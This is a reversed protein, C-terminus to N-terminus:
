FTDNFIKEASALIETPSLGIIKIKESIKLNELEEEEM